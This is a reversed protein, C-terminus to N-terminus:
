GWSNARLRNPSAAAHEGTGPQSLAGGEIPRYRAHGASPRMRSLWSHRNEHRPATFAPASFQETYLGFPVRQPSNRGIPLAGSVAQTAAHNGFGSRYLSVDMAAHGNM